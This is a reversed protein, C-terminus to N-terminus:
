NRAVPTYSANATAVLGMLAAFGSGIASKWDGDAGQWIAYFTSLVFLLAYLWARVKPTLVNTLPNEPVVAALHRPGANGEHFPSMRNEETSPVKRAPTDGIRNSIVNALLVLWVGISVWVAARFARDIM